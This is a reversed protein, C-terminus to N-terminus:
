GAGGAPADARAAYDAVITDCDAPTLIGGPRCTLVTIFGDAGQASPLVMWGVGRAGDADVFTAVRPNVRTVRRGASPCRISKPYVRNVEDVVVLDDFISCASVSGIAGHWL